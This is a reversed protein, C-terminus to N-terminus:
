LDVITELSREFLLIGCENIIFDDEKYKEDAYQLLWTIFADQSLEKTAIEFINPRM